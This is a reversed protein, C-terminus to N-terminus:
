IHEAQQMVAGGCIEKNSERTEENLLCSQAVGCWAMSKREGDSIWCRSWLRPVTSLFCSVLVGSQLVYTGFWRKVMKCRYNIKKYYYCKNVAIPSDGPPLPWKVHLLFIFSTASVNLKLDPPSCSFCTTAVQFCLLWRLMQKYVCLFWYFGTGLHGTAPGEPYQSRALLEADLTVGAIHAHVTSLATQHPSNATYSRRNNVLSINFKM